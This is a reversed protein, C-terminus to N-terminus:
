VFVTYTNLDNEKYVNNNCKWYSKRHLIISDNRGTNAVSASYLIRQKSNM